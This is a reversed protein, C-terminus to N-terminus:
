RLVDFVCMHTTSGPMTLPRTERQENQAITASFARYLQFSAHLSQPQLSHRHLVQRRLRAAQEAWHLSQRRITLRTGPSTDRAARARRGRPAVHGARPRNGARSRATGRGPRRRNSRRWRAARAGVLLLHPRRTPGGELAARARARHHLPRLRGRTPWNHPGAHGPLPRRRRHVPPGGMLLVHGRYPRLHASLRGAQEADGLHTCLAALDALVCPWHRDRPVAGLDDAMMEDLVERATEEDGLEAQLRATSVRAVPHGHIRLSWERSNEIATELRGQEWRLRSIRAPHGAVRDTQLGGFARARESLPEVEAFRGEMLAQLGQSVALIYKARRTAVEIARRQLAKLDADYGARDALQIDANHRFALALLESHQDGTRRGITLLEDALAVQEVIRTTGYLTRIMLRLAAALAEDNGTQRALALAQEAQGVMEFGKGLPYARYFTLRTTLLVWLAPDDNGVARLAQELLAPLTPDDVGTGAPPWYVLAARALRGASGIARAADAAALTATHNGEMDLLESRAQALELLLDARRCQDLAPGLELLELGRELQVVAEEPALRDLAQHGAALAYDAAKAIQGDLAAQSFHYALAGIQRDAAPAHEIAEGIRRHMRVRRTSSLEEYLTQRILAHTFSYSSPGIENILGARLAEDLADLLEEPNEGPDVQELVPLSFTPGVVSAVALARNAAASLRSLRRAIVDRVGEPLGVDEIGAAAVWRGHDLWVIGSEALHRLVEGIFFPNGETSEWLARALEVNVADLAQGGAAAVYAGVAEADLGRLRMRDIQVPERRLDALADSLPHARDLETDRYTGLLLLRM